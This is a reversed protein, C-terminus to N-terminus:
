HANKYMKCIIKKVNDKGQYKNLGIPRDHEHYIFACRTNASMVLSCVAYLTMGKLLINQIKLGIKKM